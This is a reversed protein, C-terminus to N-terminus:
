VLTLKKENPERPPSSHCHVRVQKPGVKMLQAELPAKDAKLVSRRQGLAPPQGLQMSGLRSGGGATALPPPPVFLQAVAGSGSGSVPLLDTIHTSMLAKHPLGFILGAPYLPPAPKPVVRGAADLELVGTLLDTRWLEVEVSRASADPRMGGSDIIYENSRSGPPHANSANQAAAASSKPTASFEPPAMRLAVVM